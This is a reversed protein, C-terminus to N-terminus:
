GRPPELAERYAGEVREVVAEWRFEEARARGGARLREALGPEELVRRVAAALAEPDAPPVLLGDVGDRVVERYGPIDSAVVPVGAAMAEVLVMGFSEQGLAPAVFASAGAFHAPLAEHPVAGRLDVRARVHAPLGGLLRRDRGDGVVVLELDPLDRALRVFAELAVGFGKQPDLRNVWLLRRGGVPPAAARFRDVDVGNPVVRVGPGFRATVFAAATQSVALRVRLRRWLPRLLPAAATYLGSREAYAHFTAVVPAPSLLAAFLGTSPSFPEHAHVVHPAFARLAGRVRLASRPSFCVPAVTGGYRLRVPTGVLVVGPESPGTGPALVLTEHGRRSLHEALARVHVQVGGPAEWAYPCALAVRM